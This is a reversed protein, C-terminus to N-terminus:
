LFINKKYNKSYKENQKHLYFIFHIKKFINDYNNKIKELFEEVNTIEKTEGIEFGASDVLKLPYFRHYYEKTNLTKADKTAYAKKEGLLRNIITSKGAGRNGIM